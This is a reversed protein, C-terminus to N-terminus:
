DCLTLAAQWRPLQGTWLGARHGSTGPGGTIEAERMFRSRYKSSVLTTRGSDGEARGKRNLEEDNAAFAEGLGGKAHLRLIRFRSGAAPTTASTRALIGFLLNQDAPGTSRPADAM